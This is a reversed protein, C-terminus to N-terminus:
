VPHHQRVSRNPRSYFIDPSQSAAKKKFSGSERTLPRRPERHYEQIHQRPDQPYDQNCDAYEKSHERSLPPYDRERSHDRSYLQERSHERSQRPYERSHDRSSPPPNERISERSQERSLGPNERGYERPPPTPNYNRSHDLSVAPYDRHQERSLAPYDRSHEYSPYERKVDRPNYERPDIPPPPYDAPDKPYDRPDIAPPPPPPYERPPPPPYEKNYPPFEKSYERPPPPPYDRNDDWPYYGRHRAPPTKSSPRNVPFSEPQYDGSLHTSDHSRQNPLTHTKVIPKWVESKESAVTELSHHRQLKRGTTNDPYIFKVATNQVIDPKPSPNKDKGVQSEHPKKVNLKRPSAPREVTVSVPVQNHTSPNPSSDEDNYNNVDLYRRFTAGDTTQDYDSDDNHAVRTHSQGQMAHIGNNNHNATVHKIDGVHNANPSAGRQSRMSSSRRPSTGPSSRNLLTTMELASREEQKIAHKHRREEKRKQHCMICVVLSIITIIFGGVVGLIITSYQVVIPQESHATKSAAFLAFLSNVFMKM